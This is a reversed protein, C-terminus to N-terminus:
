KLWPEVFFGLEGVNKDWRYIEIDCDIKEFLLSCKYLLLENESLSSFTQNPYESIDTEYVKIYFDWLGKEDDQYDLISWYGGLKGGSVIAYTDLQGVWFGILGGIEYDAMGLNKREAYAIRIMKAFSYIDAVEINNKTNTHIIYATNLKIEGSQGYIYEPMYYAGKPPNGHCDWICIPVAASTPWSFGVYFWGRGRNYGELYSRMDQFRWFSSVFGSYRWQSKPPICCCPYLKCKVCCCCNRYINECVSCRMECICPSIQCQSCVTNPDIDNKEGGVYRWNGSVYYFYFIDFLMRNMEHIEKITMPPIGLYLLYDRLSAEGTFLELMHDQVVFYNLLRDCAFGGRATVCLNKKVAYVDKVRNYILNSYKDEYYKWARNWCQWVYEKSQCRTPIKENLEIYKAIYSVLKPCNLRQAYYRVLSSITDAKLYQELLQEEAGSYIADKNDKCLRAIEQFEKRVILNEYVDMDINTFTDVICVNKSEFEYEAELEGYCAYLLFSIIIFLICRNMTM